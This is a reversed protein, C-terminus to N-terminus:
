YSLLSADIKRRRSDFGTSMRHGIDSPTAPRGKGKFMLEKGVMPLQGSTVVLNGVRTVPVYFGVAEPAAPLTHGHESLRQEVAGTM